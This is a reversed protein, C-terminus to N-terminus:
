LRAEHSYRRPLRPGVRCSGRRLRNEESPLCHALIAFCQSGISCRREVRLRLAFWLVVTKGGKSLVPHPIIALSQSEPQPPNLHEM